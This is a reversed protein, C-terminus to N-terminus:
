CGLSTTPRLLENGGGVLKEDDGCSWLWVEWSIDAQLIEMSSGVKKGHVAPEPYVHSKRFLSVYMLFEPRRYSPYEYEYHQEHLDIGWTWRYFGSVAAEQHLLNPKYSSELFFSSPLGTMSKERSIPGFTMVSMVWQIECFSCNESSIIPSLTFM